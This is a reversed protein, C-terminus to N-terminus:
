ALAQAWAAELTPQASLLSGLRVLNAVLGAALAQFLVKQPRRYRAKRLGRRLLHALRREVLPRLKLLQQIRPTSQEARARQLVHEMRHVVITRGRASRRMAEPDKHTCQLRLPCDACVRGPFYFTREGNARTVLRRYTTQGAPCTVTDAELDIRFDEKRFCGPMGAAPPVRAVIETGQAAAFSRLEAPSYAMDGVNAAPSLGHEKQQRLLEPAAEADHVNAATVAVATIFENGVEVSVHAKYGEWSQSQSKHGHRMQPDGVSVVRDPAVGQRLKVERDLELVEQAPDGGTGPSGGEASTQVPELDQVLIRRLLAVTEAVEPDSSVEQTVAALLLRAEQVVANLFARRQEPDAWDIQARGKLSGEGPATLVLGIEGAVDEPRRGRGRAAAGLLKRVAAGILNYTDQVAGAGWIATSDIVQVEDPAILKAEVARQLFRGFAEELKRHVQLRARFEVLTAQGVARERVELGLVAKWRLDFAMRELAQRDSLDEYGQLLVLKFMRSPPVSPRGTTPDYCELFDEDRLLRPGYRYLIEYFSGPELLEEVALAADFFSRQLSDRGLM